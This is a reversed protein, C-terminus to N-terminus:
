QIIMVILERVKKAFYLEDSEPIYVAGGEPHSNKMFGISVCYFPMKRSYNMTGDLPDIAWSYENNGM